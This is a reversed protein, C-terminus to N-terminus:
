HVVECIKGIVTLTFLTFVGADSVLSHIIWSDFSLRVSPIQFFYFSYRVYIGVFSRITLQIHLLSIITLM